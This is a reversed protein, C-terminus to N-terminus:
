QSRNQRFLTPIVHKMTGFTRGIEMANELRRDLFAQTVMIDPSDDTIWVMTTGLMISSLVARKSHRSHDTYAKDEAWNWIRNATRWLVRQGQAVHLPMSWFATVYRVAERYPALFRYRALLAARIRDKTRLASYPVDKLALIMQRDAYDSFHAVVDVLGNPFITREAGDQLGCDRVASQVLSWQWGHEPVHPLLTELVRDRLTMIDEAM